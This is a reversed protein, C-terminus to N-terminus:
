PVWRLVPATTPSLRVLAVRAGGPAPRLRLSETEEGEIVFVDGPAVWRKWPGTAHAILHEGMLPVVVLEEGPQRTLEVTEDDHVTLDARIHDRDHDVVVRWPLATGAVTYTASSTVTATDTRAEGDSGPVRRVSWLWQDGREPSDPCAALTTTGDSDPVAANGRVLM